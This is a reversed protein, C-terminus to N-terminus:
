LSLDILGLILHLPLILFECLDLSRVALGLVVEFKEFELVFLCLLLVGEEKLIFLFGVVVLDDLFFDLGVLLGVQLLIM